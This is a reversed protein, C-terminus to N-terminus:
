NDDNAELKPMTRLFFTVYGTEKWDTDPGSSSFSREEGCFKCRAPCEARGLPTEILWHHPCIM